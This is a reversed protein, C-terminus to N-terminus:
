KYQRVNFVLQASSEDTGKRVSYHDEEYWGHTKLLAMLASLCSKPTYANHLIGKEHDKFIISLIRLAEDERLRQAAEEKRSILDQFENPTPIKM